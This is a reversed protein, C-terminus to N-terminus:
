LNTLENDKDTLRADTSLESPRAPRDACYGCTIDQCTPELWEDCTKCYYADHKGNYTTVHGHHNKKDM